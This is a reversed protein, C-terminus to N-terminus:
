ATPKARRARAPARTRKPSASNKQREELEEINKPWDSKLLRSLSRDALLKGDTQCRPCYNVENDAHRIRQVATSCVPCPQRFRGHVAMGQRFATVTEPFGDGVETRLRLTWELLTERTAHHLREIDAAELQHTRRVPSLRARHLIEDSYANGIGSVLTPDTLVRKLTRNEALLAARFEDATAALPEIGGRDHEALASEGLVVHLSARKKSSAETLLLTAHEFDFAAVGVKGPIKIGRERRRLRGAIMLHIVLFLKGELELVIRKGLRRAGILRQSEAASLPPAVTRLLFPSALRVRELVRGGFLAEIREVYVTVDPLEPV